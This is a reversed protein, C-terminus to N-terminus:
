ANPVGSVKQYAFYGLAVVSVWFMISVLVVWFGSPQQGNKTFPKCLLQGPLQFIVETATIFVIEFVFRGLIRLLGGIIEEM